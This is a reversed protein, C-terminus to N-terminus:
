TQVCADWARMEFFRLKFVVVVVVFMTFLYKHMVADNNSDHTSFGEHTHVSM